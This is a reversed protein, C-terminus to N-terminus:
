IYIYICLIRIPIFPVAYSVASLSHSQPPIINPTPKIYKDCVTGLLINIMIKSEAIKKNEAGRKGVSYYMINFPKAYFINYDRGGRFGRRCSLSRNSWVYMRTCMKARFVCVVCM